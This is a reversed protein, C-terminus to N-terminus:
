KELFHIDKIEVTEGAPTRGLDVFLAIKDYDIPNGDKDKPFLGAKSFTVDEFATLQVNNEYFFFNDNDNGEWALKVTAVCDATSNLVVSFDYAKDAKAGADLTFHTQGQWESGGIKDPIVVSWGNEIESIEPALTGSWDAASYWYTVTVKSPDWLEVPASFEKFSLDKIEVTEGAPTRGLDVFLAIKDYDIPNGDKDKPFLETKVFTVDEFAKLQVNNEYFFFNDNDNGEWALKVTAVCDATSNLVVQFDYTKDAKAGADLTFHTQGQWESGGIKDPIVVSWGNEIESIEPALTGSWDAASYWYTVSVKSADWLETGGPRVSPEDDGPQDGGGQPEQHEQFCVDKIEIETGAPTRGFDFFVAIKDYDIANGEKDKPYINPM